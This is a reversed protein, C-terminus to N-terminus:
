LFIHAQVRLQQVDQPDGNADLGGERLDGNVSHYELTLKANHGNIFYNIGIDLTGSPGDFGDYNAAQMAVYPMFRSKPFKYGLQGYIVNGTGAWRSVYNEGYNFRMYAAYASFCDDGALPMDVFADVAFHSVSEHEGTSNNYMGNPHAFFGAGLALVKKSGLYTGVNYPLKTSEKDFLNYRFYGEIITSGVPDGNKDPQTFGNYSLGSDKLGRDATLGNRGPNNIALRYDFKGIEGKAYIGLHRAFQDTIALSHWAVFPRSQDLTMFNLTSQSSLRSLGNWYHLGGGIFLANDGSVKFETWAGHLFLQAADAGSNNGLPSLNDPTLSNLGFHTLILFRPSVQAYALIRSRRVQASVQLKADEVAMNNTQLWQQHWIIFRVYKNGDESLKLMLPKYSHDVEPKQAEQASAAWSLGLVFALLPFLRLLRKENM